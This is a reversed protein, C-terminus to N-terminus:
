QGELRRLTKRNLIKYIKQDAEGCLLAGKGCCNGCLEFKAPLPQESRTKRLKRLPFRQFHLRWAPLSCCAPRSFM